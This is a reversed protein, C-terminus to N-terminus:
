YVVINLNLAKLKETYEDQPVIVFVEDGRAILAKIIPLRFHYISAGAHTLFGVRM